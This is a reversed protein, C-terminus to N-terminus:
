LPAVVSALGRLEFFHSREVLFRVVRESGDYLRACDADPIPLSAQRLIKQRVTADVADPGTGRKYEAVACETLHPVHSRYHTTSPRFLWWAGDIWAQRELRLLVRAAAWAAPGGLAIWVCAAIAVQLGVMGCWTVVIHLVPRSLVLAGAWLLAVTSHRVEMHHYAFTQVVFGQRIEKVSRVSAIRREGDYEIVGTQVVVHRTQCFDEAEEQTLRTGDLVRDSDLVVPKEEYAVQSRAEHYRHAPRPGVAVDHVVPVPSSPAPTPAPARRRIDLPRRPSREPSPTRRERGDIPGCSFVEDFAADRPAPPASPEPTTPPTLTAPSAAAAIATAKFDGLAAVFGDWGYLDALNSYKGRDFGRLAKQVDKNGAYNHWFRKCEEFDLAVGAEHAARALLDMTVPGPNPEVGAIMLLIRVVHSWGWTSALLYLGLGAGAVVFLRKSAAISGFFCAKYVCISLTTVSFFVVPPFVYYHRVIAMRVLTAIILQLMPHLRSYPTYGMSFYLVESSLLMFVLAPSFVGSQALCDVVGSVLGAVVSSFLQSAVGTVAPGGRAVPGPNVEGGSQLYRVARTARTWPAVPRHQGLRLGLESAAHETSRSACGRGTVVRDHHAQRLEWDRLEQGTLGSPVRHSLGNRRWRRMDSKEQRSRTRQVSAQRAAHRDVKRCPPPQDPLDEIDWVVPAHAQVVPPAQAADTMTM